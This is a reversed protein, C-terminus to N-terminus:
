AIKPVLVFFVNVVFATGCLDTAVEERKRDIMVFADAAGHTGPTTRDMCNEFDFALFFVIDDLFVTDVAARAQVRALEVRDDFGGFPRRV